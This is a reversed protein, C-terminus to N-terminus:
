ISEVKQTNIGIMQLYSLLEKDVFDDLLIVHSKCTTIDLLLKFLPIVYVQIMCSSYVYLFNKIFTRMM